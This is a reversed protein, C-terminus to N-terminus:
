SGTLISLDESLTRTAHVERSIFEISIHLM